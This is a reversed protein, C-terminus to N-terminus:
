RTMLLLEQLLQDSMSIVRSAATFGSSATILGIFQQSLDVNSLELSGGLVRGAGLEMPRVIQAEGSNPGPVFTSNSSAVLGAPNSFTALIVQGLTKSLGNSFTGTIMGDPGIAFDNLSGPPNGDQNSMVLVSSGTSLGSVASFDLAVGLPTASGLDQRDITLAGNNISTMRGSNDYTVTGTGITLDADSDDPSTAYYRWINGTTAKTELVVTVNVTVGTGLSDYVRLSTFVSSGDAQQTKTFDFPQQVAGDSTLAGPLMTLDNDEGVNGTVVMQGGVLTVGPTGPVGATTNIGLVDEFWAALDGLTSGTTGVVFEAAPLDRGGKATNDFTLTDGPNFLLVGPAAQDRLATLATGGVALTGGADSVLTNSNLVSGQTGITGSSDLTGDLQVTTTAQATTLSGLPIELDTVVGPVLEFSNNVGYGQVIYGDASVLQSQSNLVFSGDRSFVQDSDPSRLVFFGAGEVALDTKYGTTEISGPQFDRQMSGLVSGLGVQTPNTGGTNEAPSSGTNLTNLFQTQFTARTGKFGTTNVNAVNDGISDIRFQNSRLGSMGTFLSSTLGM